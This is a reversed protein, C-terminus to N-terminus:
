GEHGTELGFERWAKGKSHPRGCLSPESNSTEVRAKTWQIYLDPLKYASLFM